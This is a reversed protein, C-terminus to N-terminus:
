KRQNPELNPSHDPHQQMYLPVERDSLYVFEHTAATENDSLQAIDTSNKTNLNNETAPPPAVDKMEGEDQDFLELVESNFNISKTEEVTVGNLTIM